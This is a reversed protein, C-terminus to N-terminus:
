AGALKKKGRTTMALVGALAAAALFGLGGGLGADRWSFGSDIPKVEPARSRAALSALEDFTARLAPGDPRV